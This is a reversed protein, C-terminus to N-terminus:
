SKVCEITVIKRSDEGCDPCEETWVVVPGFEDREVVLRDAGCLDCFTIGCETM